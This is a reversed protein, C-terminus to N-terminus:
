SDPKRPQKSPSSRKAPPSDVSETPRHEEVVSHMIKRVLPNRIHPIDGFKVGGGKGPKRDETKLQELVGLWINAAQQTAAKDEYWPKNAGFQVMQAVNAFLLMLRYTQEDGFAAANKDEDAFHGEIIREVEQALSRGSQAAADDLKARIEKTTRMSLPALKAGGPSTPRGPGRAKEVM